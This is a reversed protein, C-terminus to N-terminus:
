LYVGGRLLQEIEAKEGDSAGCNELEVYSFMSYGSYDGVTGGTATQYGHVDYYNAPLAFQSRQVFIVVDDAGLVGSNVGFGGQMKPRSDTSFFQTEQGILGLATNVDATKEALSVAASAASHIMQSGGGNNGVWPLSFGADGSYQYYGTNRGNRDTTKVFAICKGTIGEFRYQISISGGNCESAKLPVFGIYPLFVSIKTYPEFDRYDDYYLGNFDYTFPDADAWISGLPYCGVNFNVLGGLRIESQYSGAGFKSKDVPIATASVIYTSPSLFLAATNNVFDSLNNVGNLSYYAARILDHYSPVYYFNFGSGGLIGSLFSSPKLGINVTVDTSNDRTGFGGGGQTPVVPLPDAQAGYLTKTGTMFPTRSGGLITGNEFEFVFGLYTDEVGQATYKMAAAHAKIVVSQPTYNFNIGVDAIRSGWKARFVVHANETSGPVPYQEIEYYWGIDKATIKTIKPTAQSSAGADGLTFTIPANSKLASVVEATCDFREMTYRVDPYLPNYITGSERQRVGTIGTLDIWKTVTVDFESIVTDGITETVTFIHAM